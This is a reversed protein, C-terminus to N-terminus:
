ALTLLFRHKKTCLGCREWTGVVALNADLIAVADLTRELDPGSKAM